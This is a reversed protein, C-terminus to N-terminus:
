IQQQRRAAATTERTIVLDVFKNFYSMWSADLSLISQTRKPPLLLQLDAAFTVVDKAVAKPPIQPSAQPSWTVDEDDDDVGDSDDAVGGPHVCWFGQSGGSNSDEDTDRQMMNKGDLASIDAVVAAAWEECDDTEVDAENYYDSDSTLVMEGPPAFTDSKPPSKKVISPLLQEAIARSAKTPHWKSEVALTSLEIAMDTLLELKSPIEGVNDNRCCLVAIEYLSLGCRVGEQLLKNSARFYDLARHGIHLTKQLLRIDRDINLSLVYERTIDSLPEKMHPWDLWCWDMWSVDCVSRLSFGHDIPILELNGDIPKRRVLLNSANRDANMLRIDLIAIKHVEDKSLKSPSIDDMTCEAKVFAQFSGVKRKITSPSSLSHNGVSATGSGNNCFASHQAEVLTTMPVSSFGKHDLLYAAVERLCAEGPQIGERLVEGEGVYGRPNNCGFPEEDAPKFVGVRRAAADHLFYTGGSGDPAMQPPKGFALGATQNILSRLRKPTKAVMSSPISISSNNASSQQPIIHLLLTEGSRHIGADQLTRHNPLPVLPGYYLHQSSSPIHLIGSVVDKVDKITSWTKVHIKRKRRQQNGLNRIFLTLDPGRYSERMDMAANHSAM